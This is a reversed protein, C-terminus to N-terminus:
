PPLPFNGFAHTSCGQPQYNNRPKTIGASSTTHDTCVTCIQPSRLFRVIYVMLYHVRWSLLFQNRGFASFADRFMRKQFIMRIEDFHELLGNGKPGLSNLKM